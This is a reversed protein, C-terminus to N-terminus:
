CLCDTRYAQSLGGWLYRAIWGRDPTLPLGDFKLAAATSAFAFVGNDYRYYLPRTGMPDRALFVQRRADDIVALTFDGILQAPLDPGFRAWAAVVLAADTTEDGIDVLGLARALDARNDIQGWFSIWAGSQPCRRPLELDRNQASVFRRRELLVATESVAMGEADAPGFVAFPIAMSAATPRPMPWGKNGVSMVGAFM